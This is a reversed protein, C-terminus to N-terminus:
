LTSKFKFKYLFYFIAWYVLAALFILNTVITTYIGLIFGYFFIYGIASIMDWFHVTQTNTAATYVLAAPMFIIPHLALSTIWIILTSSISSTFTNLAPRALKPPMKQLKNSAWYYGVIFSASVLAILAPLFILYPQRTISAYRAAIIAGTLLSVGSFVSAVLLRSKKNANM